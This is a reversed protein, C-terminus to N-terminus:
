EEDCEDELCELIQWRLSRIMTESGGWRRSMEDLIETAKDTDSVDGKYLHDTVNITLSRFDSDQKRVFKAQEEDTIKIRGIVDSVIWVGGDDTYEIEFNYTM